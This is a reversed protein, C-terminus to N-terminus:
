ENTPTVLEKLLTSAGIRFWSPEIKKELMVQALHAYQHAQLPTKIGGSIKIGCDSQSEKIACLMAFVASFTAGEFAKGTSTKLFDCGLHILDQSAQYISTMTPFAGTELIVKLKLQKSRCREVIQACHALAEEKKNSLYASYPFVYDIEKAKHQCAKDITDLCSEISENGTPFNVVTALVRPLSKFVSLQSAFVCICAVSQSHGQELVWNLSEQSAKEDLLTLDTCRIIHEKSISADIPSKLISDFLVNFHTELSM